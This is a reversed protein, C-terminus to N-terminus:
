FAIIPNSNSIVSDDVLHIGLCFDQSNIVDTMTSFCVASLLVASRSSFWVFYDPAPLVPRKLEGHDTSEMTLRRVKLMRRSIAESRECHCPTTKALLTLSSAIENDMPRVWWPTVWCTLRKFRCERILPESRPKSKRPVYLLVGGLSKM